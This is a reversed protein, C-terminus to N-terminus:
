YSYVNVLSSARKGHKSQGGQKSAQRAQKLVVTYVSKEDAKRWGGDMWGGLTAQLKSARDNTPTYFFILYLFGDAGRRYYHLLFSVFLLTGELEIRGRNKERSGGQESGGLSKGARATQFRIHPPIHTTYYFMFGRFPSSSFGSRKLDM